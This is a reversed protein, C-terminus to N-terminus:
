RASEAAPETKQGGALYRDIESIPVLVRRGCRVIRLHGTLYMAAFTRQSVGLLRAGERPSVAHPPVETTTAMRSGGIVGRRKSCTPAVWLM